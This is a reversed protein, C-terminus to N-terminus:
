VCRNFTYRKAIDAFLVYSAKEALFILVIKKESKKKKWHLCTNHTTGVM